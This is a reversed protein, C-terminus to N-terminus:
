IVVGYNELNTNLIVVDGTCHKSKIQNVMMQLVPTPFTYLPKKYNYFSYQYGNPVGFLISTEMQKNMKKMEKEKEMEILLDGVYVDLSMKITLTTQDSVIVQKDPLTALYDDLLKIQEKIKEINKGFINPRFDMEGGDGSDIVDYCLIGNIYMEANIGTGEMGQFTKIKKFSVSPTKM